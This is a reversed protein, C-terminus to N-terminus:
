VVLDKAPMPIPGKSVPVSVLKYDDTPPQALSTAGTPAIPRVSKIASAVGAAIGKAFGSYEALKARVEM